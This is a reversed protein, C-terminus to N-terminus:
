RTYGCERMTVGSNEPRSSSSGYFHLGARPELDLEARRVRRDFTAVAASQRRATALAFGDALTINLSRFPARMGRSRRPSIPRVALVALADVGVELTEEAAPPPMPSTLSSLLRPLLEWM